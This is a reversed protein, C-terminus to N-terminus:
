VWVLTKMEDYGLVLQLTISTPPYWSSFHVFEGYKFETKRMQVSSSGFGAQIQLTPNTEPEAAQGMAWVDSFASFQMIQM